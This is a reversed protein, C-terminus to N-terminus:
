LYRHNYLKMNILPITWTSGGVMSLCSAFKIVQPKLNLAYKKTIWLAPRSGVGYQHYAQILQYIIWSDLENLWGPGWINFLPITWTSWLFPEHKVSSHNMNFLPITWTSCLFPEHQVSSHNMYILPITWTSCLFPEHQVSSYNMNFLPITWTSCLFPEHQDSSHNM